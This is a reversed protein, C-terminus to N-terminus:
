RWGRTAPCTAPPPWTSCGSSTCSTSAPATSTSTSSAPGARTARWSTATSRPPWGSSARGEPAAAPGEHRGRRRPGRQGPQPGRRPHPPRQLRSAARRAARRHRRPEARGAAHRRQRQDADAAAAVRPPTRLEELARLVQRAAWGLEPHHRKAELETLVVLPLVVEHEAFRGLARPDALLVSTDLVYIRSPEAPSVVSVGVAVGARRRKVAPPEGGESSTATRNSALRDTVASGPQLRPGSPCRSVRRPAHIPPHRFTVAASCCAGSCAAPKSSAGCSAARASRTRIRSSSSRHARRPSWATTCSAVKSAVEKAFGMEHTALLMTMGEAALERVINLVESVLEPDLASTIEDLLLLRPGMALARVIAVRQQQGGSLRDPYETAKEGLGVRELLATARETAYAKPLKLVKRPGLTVNDLVTMHPFLNFSQFM